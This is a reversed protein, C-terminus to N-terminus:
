SLRWMVLCNKINNKRRRGKRKVKFKHQHERTVFDSRQPIRTQRETQRHTQENNQLFFFHTFLFTVCLSLPWRLRFHKAISNYSFSVLNHRSNTTKKKNQEPIKNNQCKQKSEACAPPRLPHWKFESDHSILSYDPIQLKFLSSCFNLKAENSLCLFDLCRSFKIVSLTSHLGSFGVHNMSNM